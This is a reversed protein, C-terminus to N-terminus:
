GPLGFFDLIQSCHVQEDKMEAEMLRRITVRYGRFRVGFDKGFDAPAVSQLATLLQAYSARVRDLM